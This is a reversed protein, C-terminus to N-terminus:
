LCETWWNRRWCRDCSACETGMWMEVWWSSRSTPIRWSLRGIWMSDGRDSCTRNFTLNNTNVDVAACQNKLRTKSKKFVIIEILTMAKFRNATGNNENNYQAYTCYIFLNYFLSFFLFSDFQRSSYVGKKRYHKFAFRWLGQGLRHSPRIAGVGDDRSSIALALLFFLLLSTERERKWSLIETCMQQCFTLIVVHCSPNPWHLELTWTLITKFFFFFFFFLIERERTYEFVAKPIKNQSSEIGPPSTTTRGNKEKSAM